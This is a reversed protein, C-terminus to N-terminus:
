QDFMQNTLYNKLSTAYARVSDLEALDLPEGLIIIKSEDYSEAKCIEIKRQNALDINRCALIISQGRKALAKACELGVGNSSGTIVFVSETM